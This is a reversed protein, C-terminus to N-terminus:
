SAFFIDALLEGDSFEYVASLFHLPDINKPIIKQLEDPMSITNSKVATCDPSPINHNCFVTGKFNLPIHEAERCVLLANEDTYLPRHSFTLCLGHNKMIYESVDTYLHSNNTVINIKSFCPVASIIKDAIVANEDCLCLSLTQSSIKQEKIYRLMTNYLLIIESTAKKYSFLRISEPINCHVPLLLRNRYSTCSKQLLGWNIKEKHSKLEVLYYLPKGKYLVPTFSIQPRPPFFRSRSKLATIKVAAFM